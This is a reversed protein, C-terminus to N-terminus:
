HDAHTPREHDAFTRIIVTMSADHPVDLYEAEWAALADGGLGAPRVLVRVGRQRGAAQELDRVRGALGRTTM